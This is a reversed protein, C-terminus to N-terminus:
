VKYLRLLRSSLVHGCTNILVNCAASGSVNIDAHYTRHPGSFGCQDFPQHFLKHDGIYFIGVPPLPGPILQGLAAGAPGNHGRLWFKDGFFGHLDRGVALRPQPHPQDIRHSIHYVARYARLFVADGAHDGGRPVIMLDGHCQVM